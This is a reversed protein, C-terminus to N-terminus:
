LLSLQATHIAGMQIGLVQVTSPRSSGRYIKNFSDIALQIPLHIFSHTFSCM